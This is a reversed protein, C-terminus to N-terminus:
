RRPRSAARCSSRSCARGHEVAAMREALRQGHHRWAEPESAMTARRAGITALADSLARAGHGAGIDLRGIATTAALLRTGEPAPMALADAVRGAVEEIRGRGEVPEAPEYFRARAALLDRVAATPERGVILPRM